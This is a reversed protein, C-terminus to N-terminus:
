PPRLRSSATAVGAAIINSTQPDMAWYSVSVSAIIEVRDKAIFMKELFQDVSGGSGKIYLVADYRHGGDSTAERIEEHLAASVFPSRAGGQPITHIAIVFADIAKLLEEALDATVTAQATAAAAQDREARVQTITADLDEPNGTTPPQDKQKLLATLREQANSRLTEQQAKAQEQDLKHRAVRDRKDRLDRELRVISREPVLRFNDIHVDRDIALAGAVEAIAATDDDAIAYSAVSRRPALASILGPIATAAAAVVPLLGAASKPLLADASASLRDLGTKVEVYAGDTSALDADSTILVLARQGTSNQKPIKEELRKVLLKAAARLAHRTLDNSRLAQDGSVKTEPVQVKGLDPILSAIQAQRADFASKNAEAVAKKAEAEKQQRQLAPDTDVAAQRAAENAEAIAKKAEAERQQKALESAAETETREAAAADATAKRAAALAQDIKAQTVRSDEQNDTVLESWHEKRHVPPVASRKSAGSM